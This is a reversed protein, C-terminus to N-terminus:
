VCYKEIVWDPIRVPRGTELNILVNLVRGNCCLDGSEKEVIDFDVWASSKTIESIRSRVLMRDGLKLPKRYDIETRRLFWTLGQEQFQQMSIGYCREMQDFRATLFFALYEPSHVHGHLDIDGPRVAVETEFTTYEM